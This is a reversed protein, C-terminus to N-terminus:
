ERLLISVGVLHSESEKLRELTKRDEERMKLTLGIGVIAETEADFSVVRRKEKKKM